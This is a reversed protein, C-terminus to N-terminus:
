EEINDLNGRSKKQMEGFLFGALIRGSIFLIASEDEQWIRLNHQEACMLYGFCRKQYFVRTCLVTEYDGSKLFQYLKPSISRMNEITNTVYLDRTDNDPTLNEEKMLEDIDSVDTPEIEGKVDRIMRDESIYFLNTVRLDEELVKFMGALKEELTDYADFQDVLNHMTMFLGHKVLKQIELNKHKSELYIIYCNRGKTKGRYLTKDALQFLGDYTDADTPFTACGLTGTIFPNCTELQVNKRMVNFNAYMSQFFRKKQAYELDRLNVLLFEDGGFRGVLGFDEHYRILDAGVASLVGDGIKHGYTDNIFKFNDLDLMALSFPIQQRILYQVFDIIVSRVLVGTLSDIFESIKENKLRERFYPHVDLMEKTYM